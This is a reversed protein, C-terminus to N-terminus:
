KNEKRGEVGRWFLQHMGISARHTKTTSTVLLDRKDNLVVMWQKSSSHEARRTMGQPSYYSKTQNIPQILFSFLFIIIIEIKLWCQATKDAHLLDSLSLALGTVRALGTIQILLM